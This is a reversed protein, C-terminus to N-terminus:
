GVRYFKANAANEGVIAYGTLPDDFAITGALVLSMQTPPLNSTDTDTNAAPLGFLHANAISQVDITPKSRTNVIPTTRLALNTTASPKSALLWTLQSAQWAIGLTALACIALPAHKLVLARLQEANLTQLQKISVPMASSLRM